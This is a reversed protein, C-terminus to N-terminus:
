IMNIYNRYYNRCIFKKNILLNVTSKAKSTIKKEKEISIDPSNGNEKAKNYEVIKKMNEKKQKETEVEKKLNKEEEEFLNKEDFTQM